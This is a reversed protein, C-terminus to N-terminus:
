ITRIRVPVETSTLITYADFYTNQINEQTAYPLQEVRRFELNSFM